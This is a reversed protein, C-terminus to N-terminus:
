SWVVDKFLIAVGHIKPAVALAEPSGLGRPDHHRVNNHYVETAAPNPSLSKAVGNEDVFMDCYTPKGGHEWSWFVRVHECDLTGLIPALILKITALSPWRQEFQINVTTITGDPDFIRYQTHMPTIRELAELLRVSLRPSRNALAIALSGALATRSAALARWVADRRARYRGQRSNRLRTRNARHERYARLAELIRGRLIQWDRIRQRNIALPTSAWRAVQRVTGSAAERAVWREARHAAKRERLHEASAERKVQRAAWRERLREQNRARTAEDFFRLRQLTIEQEAERRAERRAARATRQAERWESSDEYAERRLRDVRERRCEISCTL